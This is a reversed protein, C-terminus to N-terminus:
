NRMSNRIRPAKTPKRVPSKPIPPPTKRTGVRRNMKRFFPMEKSIAVGMAAPVDRATAKTAEKEVERAWLFLFEM